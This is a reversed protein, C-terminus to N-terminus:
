KIECLDNDIIVIRECTLSYDCHHHELLLVNIKEYELRKYFMELEDQELCGKLGVIVCLEKGFFDKQIKLYEFLREAIDIHNDSIKFDFLKVIDELNEFHNFETEFPLEDQIKYGLENLNGFLNRCDEDMDFINCIFNNLKASIKRSQFDLRFIDSIVVAKKHFEIIENKQSLVFDGVIGSEQLVLDMLFNRYLHPSEIVLVNVTGEDFKIPESLWLHALKM